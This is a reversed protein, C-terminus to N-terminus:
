GRHHYARHKEGWRAKILANYAFTRGDEVPEDYAPADATGIVEVDGLDALEPAEAVIKRLEALKKQNNSAVLIRM